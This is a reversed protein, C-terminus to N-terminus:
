YLRGLRRHQTAGLWGQLRPTKRKGHIAVSGAAEGGGAEGGGCVARQRESVAVRSDREGYEPRPKPPLSRPALRPVAM